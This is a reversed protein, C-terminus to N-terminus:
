SVIRLFPNSSVPNVLNGFGIGGHDTVLTSGTITDIGSIPITSAFISGLLAKFPNTVIMRGAIKVSRIKFNWFWLFGISELYSRSRGPLFNYNIFEESVLRKAVDINMNKNEVLDNYYIAKAVYDSYLVAQVLGKYLDTDKSIIAYRTVTRLSKPIKKNAKKTDIIKDIQKKIFEGINESSLLGDIDALGENVASFEGSDILPKISLRNTLEEISELEKTLRKQTIPDSSALLLNIKIKRAENKHYLKLESFVKQGNNILFESSVGNMKLQLVNSATNGAPVVISKLYIWEKTYKVVEQLGDEFTKLYIYANSGFLLRLMKQTTDRVDKSFRSKGTFIDSVSPLRYGLSNNM